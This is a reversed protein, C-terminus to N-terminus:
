GDTQRAWDWRVSGRDDPWRPTSAIRTKGSARLAATAVPNPPSMVVTALVPLWRKRDALRAREAPTIIWTEIIAILQAPRWGQPPGEGMLARKPSGSGATSRILSRFGLTIPDSKRTLSPQFHALVGVAVLRVLTGASPLASPLM